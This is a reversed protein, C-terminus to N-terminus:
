SNGHAKEEEIAKKATYRIIAKMKARAAAAAPHMFPHALRHRSGYEAVIAYPIKDFAIWVYGAKGEHDVYSSIANRLAGTLIPAYKKATLLAHNTVITLISDTIEDPINSYGYKGLTGKIDVRLGNGM